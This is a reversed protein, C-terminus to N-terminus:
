SNIPLENLTSKTSVLHNTIFESLKKAEEPTMVIMDEYIEGTKLLRLAQKLRFVLSNKRIRGFGYFALWYEQRVVPDPGSVNEIVEFETTIQVAETGCACEIFLKKRGSSLINM